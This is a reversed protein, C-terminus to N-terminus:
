GCFGDDEGECHKKRSSSLVKEVVALVFAAVFAASVGCALLAYMRRGGPLMKQDPPSSPSQNQYSCTVWSSLQYTIICWKM